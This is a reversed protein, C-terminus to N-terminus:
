RPQRNFLEFLATILLLVYRISIIAFAVPIISECVWAPVAAFAILGDAKEMRVFAMSFWTMAFCILATFIFILIASLKKMRAPLYRSIVDIRIHHNSRSAIMAGMLGIWLVLLRVLEDGWLVGAGFLNRLIIQLVAMVMMLLVLGILLSDEVKQLFFIIQRIRSTQNNPMLGKQGPIFDPLILMWNIQWM